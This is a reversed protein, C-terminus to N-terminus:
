KSLSRIIYIFSRKTLLLSRKSFVLSRKCIFHFKSLTSIDGIIWTNEELQKFFYKKRTTSAVKREEHTTKRSRKWKLYEKWLKEDVQWMPYCRDVDRTEVDPVPITPESIIETSTTPPNVQQDEDSVKKNEIECLKRRKILKQQEDEDPETVPEKEVLTVTTDNKQIEVQQKTTELQSEENVISISPPVEHIQVTQDLQAMECLPLPQSVLPLTTIMEPLDKEKQNQANLNDSINRIALLLNADRSDISIDSGSEEQHERQTEEQRETHQEETHQEEVYPQDSTIM